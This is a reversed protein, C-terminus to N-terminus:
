NLTLMLRFFLSQLSFAGLQNRHSFSCVLVESARLEDMMKKMKNYQSKAEELVIMHKDIIQVTFIFQSGVWGINIHMVKLLHMASYM